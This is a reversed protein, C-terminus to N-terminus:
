SMEMTARISISWCCPCEQSLDRVYIVPISKLQLILRCIRGCIRDTQSRVSATPANIHNRELTRAFIARYCGPVALLRAAFRVNARYRTRASICKLRAWHSTPRTATNVPLHKEHNRAPVTSSNTSTFVPFQPSVGTASSADIGWVSRILRVTPQFIKKLMKQRRKSEVLKQNWTSHHHVPIQKWPNFTVRHWRPPIYM